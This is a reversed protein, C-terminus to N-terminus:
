AARTGPRSRCTCSPRRAAVGPRRARPAPGTHRDGRSGHGARGRAGVLRARVPRRAVLRSRRPRGRGRRRAALPRPRADRGAPALLRVALLSGSSASAGRTSLPPGSRGRTAEPASATSRRRGTSASPSCTSRGGSATASGRAAPALQGVRRPAPLALRHRPEDLRPPLSDRVPRARRALGFHTFPDVAVAVVHVAIFVLALLSVYGHLENTVLRPWRSSQWRNRLVLGLAVAATLLVYSILGGARATDWTVTNWSSMRRARPRALALAGRPDARGAETVLLGALGLRALLAPGLRPGAVFAATAGVEAARCTWGAVTVQRLGDSPPSARARTSSITASSRSGAELPTTGNGSTALAGRVLPVVPGEPDGGVLVGWARKGPPLGRVALDGGASVLAADVGLGALLELSADVAMGKAIGGLDLGSGAPLTVVGAASDVVIRRWAGGGRPRAPRRRTADASRRSRAPRLRDPRARPPADSRLPRRDRAGGRAVGRGRGSPDPRRSGTRRDARQAPLAREPASVPQARGGM